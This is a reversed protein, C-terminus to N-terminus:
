EPQSLRSGCHCTKGTVTAAVVLNRLRGHVFREAALTELIDEQFPLLGFILLGLLALTPTEDLVCRTPCGLM